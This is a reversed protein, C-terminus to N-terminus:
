LVRKYDVRGMCFLKVFTWFCVLERKIDRIEFETTTSCGASVNFARVAPKLDVLSYDGVESSSWTELPSIFALGGYINERYPNKVRVLIRNETLSVSWPIPRLSKKM